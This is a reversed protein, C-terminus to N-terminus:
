GRKNFVLCFLQEVWEVPVYSGAKFKDHMYILSLAVGLGNAYSDLRESKDYTLGSWKIDLDKCIHKVIEGMIVFADPRNAGQSICTMQWLVHLKSSDVLVWNGKVKMDSVQNLTSLLGM